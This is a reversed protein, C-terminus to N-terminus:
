RNKRVSEKIINGINVLQHNYYLQLDILNHISPANQLLCSDYILRKELIASEISYNKQSGYNAKLLREDKEIM